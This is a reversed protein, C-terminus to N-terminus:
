YRECTVLLKSTEKKIIALLPQQILTRPLGMFYDEVGIVKIVAHQPQNDVLEFM